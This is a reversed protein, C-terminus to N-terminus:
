VQDGVVAKVGLVPAVTEALGKAVVVYVTVPASAFPQIAVAVCVTVTALMGCFTVAVAVGAVIHLPAVDVKVPEAVVDIGVM